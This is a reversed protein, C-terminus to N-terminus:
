SYIIKLERTDRDQYVIDIYVLDSKKRNILEELYGEVIGAWEIAIINGPKMYNEIKLQKLESINELRWADIHILQGSKSKYEEIISYTPSKIIENVGLAVGVGKVFQTKGAGLDANFMLILSNNKIEKSLRDIFREGLERMEDESTVIYKEIRSTSTIKGKRLISLDGRTTDIVTSSPNSPLTGVDIILNILGQQNNSINKLIDGIKYPTKKGSSNASTATIPTGLKNILDLTFKFDPIRIGLSKYESELGKAVKSKSKSVVTVPGPLLREYIKIAETNLEVYKEAMKRSDVAISIAKGSPRKKYKLLKNVAIQDIASVGAGYCTETPFIILGSSQLVKIAEKLVEPENDNTLKIIEM